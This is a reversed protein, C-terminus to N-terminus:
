VAYSDPMGLHVMRNLIAMRVMVEVVQGAFSRARVRESFIMKKRFFAVEVKSRRYYGSEEKWRRLGVRRIERLNEDRLDREGKRNGHRWIVAGKEKIVAYCKRRDYAKDAIVKEIKGEVQGLLECLVDGDAVENGSVHVSVIENSREDVAIHVKLWKRRRARGHLLTKWEGEGYVKVGSSDVVLHLPEKTHRRPLAVKLSKRRRCLSTYDPVPLNLRLM